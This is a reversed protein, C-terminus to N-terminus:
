GCIWHFDLRLGQGDLHKEKIELQGGSLLQICLADVAAKNLRIVTTDRAGFETVKKTEENYSFHGAKMENM